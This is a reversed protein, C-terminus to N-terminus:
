KIWQLLFNHMLCISEPHQQLIYPTINLDSKFRTVQQLFFVLFLGHYYHLHLPNNHPMSSLSFSHGSTEPPFMTLSQAFRRNSKALIRKKKDVVKWKIIQRHSPTRWRRKENRERERETKRVVVVLQEMIARLYMYFNPPCSLM